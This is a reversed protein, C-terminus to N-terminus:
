VDRVENKTEKTKKNDDDDQRRNKYHFAYFGGFILALGIVITGISIHSPIIKEVFLGAFGAIVATKGLDIALEGFKEVVEDYIKMKGEEFQYGALILCCCGATESTFRRELRM